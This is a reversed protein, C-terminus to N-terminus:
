NDMSQLAVLFVAASARYNRSGQPEGQRNYWEFFAGNKSVRRAIQVLKERGLDPNQKFILAAARAGFWDWDGGNQYEFAEDMIPNQFTEAPYPPLLVGGVSSIGYKKQRELITTVVRKTQAPTAAGAEIVALNGGLAFIEDEDFKHPLPDIHEHIRFYGGSENWLSAIFKRIGSEMKAVGGRKRIFPDQNLERPALHTMAELSRLLLGQIFIGCVRGGAGSMSTSMEISQGELGVDGWDATHGNTLCSKEPNFRAVLLNMFVRALLKRRTTGASDLREDLIENSIAGAKQAAAVSLVLWLEQDSQVDNVGFSHEEAYPTVWDDVRAGVPHTLLFLDSWHPAFLNRTVKNPLLAGQITASDRVWVVPYIGGADWVHYTTNNRVSIKESALLTRIAIDRATEVAWHDKEPFAHLSKTVEAAAQAFPKAFEPPLAEAPDVALISRKIYRDEKSVEHQWGVSEQVLEIVMEFLGPKTPCQVNVTLEVTTASEVGGVPALSHPLLFRPPDNSIEGAANTLRYAVNTNISIQSPTTGSSLVYPSSNEVVIRNSFSEGALCYIVKPVAAPYKWNLRVLEHDRQLDFLDKHDFPVNDRGM